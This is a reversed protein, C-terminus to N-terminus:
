LYKKLSNELENKIIERIHQPELVEAYQGYSLIYGYVWENEPFSATAIFSGDSNKIIAEHDFEDYLRYAMRVDIKLRLTVMQMEAVEEPQEWNINSINRQFGESSLKLNKMRIIKFIRFDERDRCFGYIYWSQGKFVLKLPEVQRETKEGASSFYDFIVVKESLIATQITNFKERGSRDKSWPSFDVDIWSKAQKNFFISLKNLVPTIDAFKVAHLSQLSLLIENQEQDSLISKNLVFNDMLRIGGGKGKSTYIPIGAGSLIDIDRYVTRISVEFQEALEKATIAKKKLLTYIIAFLRNIQM